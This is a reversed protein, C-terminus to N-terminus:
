RASPPTPEPFKDATVGRKEGLNDAKVAGREGMPKEPGTTTDRSTQAEIEADLTAGLLVVFASLWMWTLLIIVGALAGFTENYSSFSQVYASFGFSGAM